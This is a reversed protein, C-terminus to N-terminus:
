AAHCATWQHVLAAPAHVARKQNELRAVPLRDFAEDGAVRIRPLRNEGAAIDPLPLPPQALGGLRLSRSSFAAQRAMGAASMQRPAAPRPGSPAAKRWDRPCWWGPLRWRGEWWRRKRSM